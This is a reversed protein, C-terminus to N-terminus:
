VAECKIEIEFEDSDTWVMNVHVPVLKTETTTAIGGQRMPMQLRDSTRAWGNTLWPVSGVAPEPRSCNSASNKPVSVNKTDTSAQSFNLKRGARFLWSRGQVHNGYIEVAGLWLPEFYLTRM